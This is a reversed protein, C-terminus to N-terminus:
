PIPHLELFREITALLRDFWGDESVDIAIVNPM